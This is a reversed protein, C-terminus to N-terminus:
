SCLIVSKNLACFYDALVFCFLDNKHLMIIKIPIKKEEFMPIEGTRDPDADLQHPDVPDPDPDM